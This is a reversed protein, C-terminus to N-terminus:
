STGPDEALLGCIRLKGRLTMRSVGLIEAMRVQNGGTENWIYRLLVEDFEGQLRRYLDNKGDALLTRIRGEWDQIGGSASAGNAPFHDSRLSSPLDSAEIRNGASQVVAYRIASQLERVNGPWSHQHLLQRADPSIIRQPKGLEKGIQQLFHDTLLPIDDPRQRLSPLHITFGNLRYLLDLRFAGADVLEPLNQNTAAIIRVDTKVTTNGGLREFQQEQLLRLAKAQTTLSMDGIEDLFLTGGNVQEFKGIRRNDAGTFAGKEHGFLESELLTEPLAACNIALFPRDKRRSYHFIARAILEKGTGSEGLILVPADQQAIRGVAKYVEQMEVSRGLIQDAQDVSEGADPMVAPVRNLRSVALAKDVVEKLTQLDVPKVLYDFAGRSMAEIATATKAYATMMIVPLTADLKRIELFADLGTMDPLRIDLLAVDPRERRVLEIGKAASGATLVQLQSSNLVHEISFLINPEDDVVLLKAVMSRGEM